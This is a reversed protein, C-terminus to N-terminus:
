RKICYGELNFYIDIYLFSIIKDENYVLQTFMSKRSPLKSFSIDFLPGNLTIVFIVVIITFQFVFFEKVPANWINQEYIFLLKRFHLNRRLYKELIQNISKSSGVKFISKRSIAKCNCVFMCVYMCVYMCVFM